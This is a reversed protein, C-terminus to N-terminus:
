SYTMELGNSIVIYKMGNPYRKACYEEINLLKGSFIYCKSYDVFFSVYKVVNSNNRICCFNFEISGPSDSISLSLIDESKENNLEIFFRTNLAVTFCIM